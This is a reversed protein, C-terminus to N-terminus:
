CKRFFHVTCYAYSSYGWDSCCFRKKKESLLLSFLSKCFVPWSASSFALLGMKELMDRMGILEEEFFTWFILSSFAALAKFLVVLLFDLFSLLFCNFLFEFLSSFFWPFFTRAFSCFVILITRCYVVALILLIRCLSLGFLNSLVTCFSVGFFRSLSFRFFNFLIVRFCLGIHRFLVTRFNLGVFGLVCGFLGLLRPLFFGLFRIKWRRNWCLIKM